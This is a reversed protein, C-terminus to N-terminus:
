MGVVEQLNKIAEGIDASKFIYSGSILINVGAAALRPATEPTVGGDVSIKVDPYAAHFAAIKDIVAPIFGGGYFGPEVAMFHVCDIQNIYPLILESPTSPNLAISAKKNNKKLIEILRDAQATAEIHFIYGKASTKLWNTIMEEPKAVMLHACIEIDKNKLNSLEEIGDITKNPVFVGDAIDLHIKKSFPEIEKVMEAFEGSDKTLIAPIIEIM